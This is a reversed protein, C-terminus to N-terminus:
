IFRRQLLLVHRSSSDGEVAALDRATHTHQSDVSLEAPPSPLPPSVAEYARARARVCMSIGVDHTSNRERESQNASQGGV